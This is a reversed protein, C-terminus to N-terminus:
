RLGVLGGNTDTEEEVGVIEEDDVQDGRYPSVFVPTAQFLWRDLGWGVREEKAAGDIGGGVNAVDDTLQRKTEKAVGKASFKDIPFLHDDHDYTDYQDDAQGVM